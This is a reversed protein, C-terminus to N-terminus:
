GAGGPGGAGGLSGDGEMEDPDSSAPTDASELDQGEATIDTGDGIPPSEVEDAEAHLPQDKPETM